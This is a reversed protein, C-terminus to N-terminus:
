NIANSTLALRAQEQYRQASARVNGDQINFPTQAIYQLVRPVGFEAVLPSILMSGGLQQVDRFAADDQRWGHATLEQLDEPWILDVRNTNFFPRAQRRAAEVGHVLMQCGLRKELELSACDQHPWSLGKRYAAEQLHTMWLADDIIEIIPLLARIDENKYYPWYAKAWSKAGHGISSLVGRRFTLTRREPDYAASSDRPYSDDARRALEITIKGDAGDLIPGLAQDIATARMVVLEFFRRESKSPREALALKESASQATPQAPSEAAILVFLAIILQKV